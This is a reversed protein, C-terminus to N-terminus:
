NDLSRPKFKREDNFLFTEVFKWPKPLRSVDGFPAARRVADAALQLTDRAERPQRLVEIRRISGDANLEVELVPIALLPDPVQGGYTGAPNAAMMRLAAQHRVETWNRVMGPPPLPSPAKAVAPSPAVYDVPRQPLSTAAAGNAEGPAKNAPPGACGALFVFALLGGRRIRRVLGAAGHLGACARREHEGQHENM